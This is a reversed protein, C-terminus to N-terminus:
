AVLGMERLDAWPEAVSCSGFSTFWRRAPAPELGQYWRVLVQPDRRELTDVAEPHGAGDWLAMTTLLVNVFGHHEFGDEGSHRVARHLGATCKFQTERDLAADIWSALTAASPFASADLGGTRFKLRLGSAAVEDAAALWGGEAPTAPLEVHVPVETEVERLAPVVRRVNGAPDDLDRVAIELGALNLGLRTCLAVPGALQGAGGTIVVSLPADFGRVQPLDTDRLVFSGVLEAGEEPSRAAYAATAEQLPLDGPPFIAADDVLGAWADDLPVPVLKPPM